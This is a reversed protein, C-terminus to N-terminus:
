KDYRKMDEPSFITSCESVPAALFYGLVLPGDFMQPGNSNGIELAELYDHMDRDIPVITVSISDGSLIIDEEDEEDIDRRTTMIVENIIGGHAMTDNIVVWKYIKDNRYIRMWYCENRIEPNDKFSVQLVAVDDYPMKIWGFEMGLIDVEKCMVSRSTYTNGEREVCIEYEHGEVGCMSTRYIGTDDPNLLFSSGGTLDTIMVSADSLRATDMPENMSTTHTLSVEGGKTTLSGEIVLLPEIDKYKFTIEKECGGTVLCLLLIPFFHINYKFLKM